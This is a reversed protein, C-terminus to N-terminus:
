KAGELITALGRLGALDEASGTLGAIKECLAKAVQRQEGVIRELPEEYKKALAKVTELIDATVKNGLALVNVVIPAIWKEHLLEKAKADTLSGIVQRTKVELEFAQRRIDSKVAKIRELACHARLLKAEFSDEPFDTATKKSRGGIKKVRAVVGKPVFVGKDANWFDDHLEEEDFAEQAEDLDGQCTTLDRRATELAALEGPLHIRQVLDFPVIRGEWGDQVEVEEGTKANKKLVMKPDVARVADFGEDQLIELDGGIIQWQDHLIQYATYRDVLPVGDLLEFLRASIRRMESSVRVRKWGKILQAELEAPFDKFRAALDDLFARIEENAGVIEESEPKLLTYATRTPKFLAERLGPFANWYTTEADIEAKPIGGFLTASLDWLECKTASEVYRPINM